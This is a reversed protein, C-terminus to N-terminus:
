RNLGELQRPDTHLLPFKVSRMMNAFTEAYRDYVDKPALATLRYHDDGVSFFETEMFYAIGERTMTATWRTGSLGDRTVNEEGTRQYQSQRALGAELVKKYLDPTAEAHERTLMFYAMSGPKNFTVNHPHTFSGPEVTAVKWEDPLAIKMGLTPNDYVHPDISKNEAAPMNTGAETRALDVAADSRFIAFQCPDLGSKCTLTGRMPIEVTVNSPIPIPFNAAQLSQQLPDLAADGSIRKGEIKRDRTIRLLFDGQGIAKSPNPISVIRSQQLDSRGREVAADVNPALSKLRQKADALDELKPKRTNTDAAAVAMAYTRAADERRSTKEYIQALHNGITTSPYLRWSAEIYSQAKATDGRLFYIWGRTDWYAAIGTVFNLQMATLHDLSISQLRASEMALCADSWKEALDLEINREALAYAASNWAGPASSSSIAQELESLGKARNGLDIDCEGLALLPEPKNPSVALGKQLEPVAESCKKQDRLLMGLNSHAYRDDANIVIQKHFQSAAEEYKQQRWYVVGLNNYAIPSGPYFKISNAFANGAADLDNLEILSWGLMNWAGADQPALDIIRRFTNAATQFDGRKYTEDGDARLNKIEAQRGEAEPTLQQPPNPGIKFNVEIKVEADVTSGQYTPPDFKWRKVAEIAAESLLDSPSSVSHIDRPLGDKQVVLDLTVTGEIRARRAKEPYVPDMKSITHPPTACMGSSEPHKDDCVQMVSVADVSITSQGLLFASQLFLFALCLRRM